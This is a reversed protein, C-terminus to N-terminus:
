FHQSTGQRIEKALTPSCIDELTRFASQLQDILVGSAGHEEFTTKWQRVEGWVRRM